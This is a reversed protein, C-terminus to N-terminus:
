KNGKKTWKLGTEADQTNAESGRLSDLFAKTQAQTVFQPPSPSQNPEDVSRGARLGRYPNKYISKFQENQRGRGGGGVFTNGFFPAEPGKIGHKINHHTQEKKRVEMDLKDNDINNLRNVRNVAAASVNYLGLMSERALDNKLRAELQKLDAEAKEAICDGRILEDPLDLICKGTGRTSSFGIWAGTTPDIYTMGKQLCNSKLKESMGPLMLKTNEDLVTDGMGVRNVNLISSSGSGVVKNGAGKVKSEANTSGAGSAFGAVSAAFSNGSGLLGMGTGISGAIGLLSLLAAKTKFHSTARKNKEKDSDEDEDSSSSDKKMCSYFLNHSEKLETGGCCGRCCVTEDEIVVSDKKTKKEKEKKRDGKANERERAHQKERAAKEKESTPNKQQQERRRQRELHAQKEKEYDQRRKKEANRRLKEREPDVKKEKGVRREREAKKNKQEDLDFLKIEELEHAEPKLKLSKKLESSFTVKRQGGGQPEKPRCVKEEKPKEADAPQKQGAKTTAALLASASAIATADIADKVNVEDPANLNIEVFPADKTNDGTSDPPTNQPDHQSVSAVDAGTALPQSSITTDASQHKESQAGTKISENSNAASVPKCRTQKGGQPPPPIHPIPPSESAEKVTM